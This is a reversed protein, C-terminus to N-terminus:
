ENYGGTDTLETARVIHELNVVVRAGKKDNFYLLSGEVCIITATYISGDSLNIKYVKGPEWIAEM